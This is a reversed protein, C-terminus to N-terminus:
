RSGNVFAILSAPDTCLTVQSAQCRSRFDRWTAPALSQRVAPGLFLAKHTRGFRSGLSNLQQEMEKAAHGPPLGAKVEILCSRNRAHVLLDAERELASNAPQEGVRVNCMMQSPQLGAQLLWHSVLQELWIGSLWQKFARAPGRAKNGPLKLTSGTYQWQDSLQAFRTMWDQEDADLQPKGLLTPWDLTLSTQHLAQNDTDGWLRQLAQFLWGLAADQQRQAHWIQEALSLTLAPQGAILRNEKAPVVSDSYLAAVQLASASPLTIGPQQVLGTDTDAVVQIHQTGLGIYDMGAWISQRVLVATMAKTGGTFNLWLPLPQRQLDQLLPLLVRAVWHQNQLVQDGDLPQDATGSLLYVHIGPLVQELQRQLRAAALQYSHTHSTILVVHSPRRAMCAELEALNYDSVVCVYVMPELAPTETM